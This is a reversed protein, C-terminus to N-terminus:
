PFEGKRIVKRLARPRWDVSQNAVSIPNREEDREQITAWSGEVKAERPWTQNGCFTRTPEVGVARLAVDSATIGTTRDAATEAEPVPLMKRTEGRTPSKPPTRSIVNVLLLPEGMSRLAAFVTVKVKVGGRPREGKVRVPLATEPVVPRTRYKIPVPSKITEPLHCTRAVTVMFLEVKVLLV